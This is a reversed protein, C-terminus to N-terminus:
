NLNVLENSKNKENIIKLLDLALCKSFEDAGNKNLHIQDFYFDKRKSFDSNRYNLIGVNFKSVINQIAPNDMYLNNKQVDIQKQYLSPLVFFVKIGRATSLACFSNLLDIGDKNCILRLLNEFHNGKLSSVELPEFGKYLGSKIKEPQLLGMIALRKMYDDYKTIAFVPFKKVFQMDKDYKSITNYITSDNYYPYYQAPYELNIPNLINNDIVLLIYKPLPHTSALYSRLLMETENIRYAYMGLNYSNIHMMSDLVYPNFNNKALSYGIILIEHNETSQSIHNLTGFFDSKQKRLGVNMLSFLVFSLLVSVAIIFFIYKFLKIM